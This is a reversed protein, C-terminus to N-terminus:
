DGEVEDIVAYAQELSADASDMVRYAQEMEDLLEFRRDIVPWDEDTLDGPAKSLPNPLADFEHRARELRASAEDATDVMQAVWARAEELTFKQRPAALQEEAERYASDLELKANVARKTLETVAKLLGLAEPPLARSDGSRVAEGYHEEFLNRALNAAGWAVNLRQELENLRKSM